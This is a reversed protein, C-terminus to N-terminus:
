FMLPHLAVLFRPCSVMRLIPLLGLPNQKLGNERGYLLEIFSLRLNRWRSDIIRGDLIEEALPPHSLRQLLM